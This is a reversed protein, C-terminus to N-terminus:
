VKEEVWQTIGTSTPRSVTSTRTNSLDEPARRITLHNLCPYHETVLHRNFVNAKAIRNVLAHWLKYSISWRVRRVPHFWAASVTIQICPTKLSSDWPTEPKTSCAISKRNLRPVTNKELNKQENTLMQVHKVYLNQPRTLSACIESALPSDRHQWGFIILASSNTLLSVRETQVM